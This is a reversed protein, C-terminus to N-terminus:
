KKPKLVGRNILEMTVTYKVDDDWTAEQRKKWMWLLYQTPVENWPKGRHEGLPCKQLITPNGILKIIEQIPTDITFFDQKLARDILNVLNYATYWCDAMARHPVISGAEKPLDYVKFYYRLSQNSFSKADPVVHRALRWTCLWKSLELDEQFLHHKLFAIEFDKSHSVLIDPTPAWCEEMVMEINPAEIVMDDTIHHIAMADYPIPEGPSVLQEFAEVKKLELQDYDGQVIKCDLWAIEVIKDKDGDFGTTELDVVRFTTDLLNM